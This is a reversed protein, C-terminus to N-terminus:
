PNDRKNSAVYGISYINQLKATDRERERERKVRWQESQWEGMAKSRVLSPKEGPGTQM